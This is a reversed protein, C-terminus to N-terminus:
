ATRKCQKVLSIRGAMFLTLGVQLTSQQIVCSRSRTVLAKAGRQERLSVSHKVATFNVAPEHDVKLDKGTLFSINKTSVASRSFLKTLLLTQLSFRAIHDFLRLRCQLAIITSLPQNISPHVSYVAATILQDILLLLHALLDVIVVWDVNLLRTTGATSQM